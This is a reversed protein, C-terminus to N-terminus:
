KTHRLRARDQFKRFFDTLFPNSEARSRRLRFSLCGPEPHDKLQKERPSGADVHRPPGTRATRSQNDSDAVPFSDTEDFLIALKDGFSDPTRDM